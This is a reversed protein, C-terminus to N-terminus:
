FIIQPKLAEDMQMQPADCHFLQNYDCNKLLNTLVFLIVMRESLGHLSVVRSIPFYGCPKSKYMNTGYPCVSTDAWSQTTDAGVNPM